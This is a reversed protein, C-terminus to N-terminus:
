HERSELLDQAAENVFILRAVQNPSINREDCWAAFPIPRIWTKSVGFGAKQFELEIREARELWADCTTPLKNSDSFLELLAPYDSRTFWPLALTQSPAAM